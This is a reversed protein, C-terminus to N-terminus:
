EVPTLAPVLRIRGPGFRDDMAEQLAEGPDAVVGIEIVSDIGPGSSYLFQIGQEQLLAEAQARARSLEAATPGAREVVCFPGGWRRLMEAEHRDADVAFVVNLLEPWYEIGSGDSPDIQTVWSTVYEPQRQAYAGAASISRRGRWQALWGGEPEECPSSFDPEVAPGDRPPGVSEVTFTGGDYAGILHYSGWTTGNAHEERGVAEWDWGVVPVGGCQPPYSEAVGGLCLEPGHGGGELVFATVQYRPPSAGPAVTNPDAVEASGCGAAVAAVALLAPFLRM